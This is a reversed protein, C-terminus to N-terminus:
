GGDDGFFGAAIATSDPIEYRFSAPYGAGVFGFGNDVNTFTGPEVLLEADYVDTPPVWEANSVLVLVEVAEARLDQVPCSGLVERFIQRADNSFQVTVVSGGNVQEQDLAYPYEFELRSTDCLIHYRVRINNLRPAQPWFVPLFVFRDAVTPALLLPESLPPVTVEVSTVAGDSRTAELRYTHEFVARFESWFVHGIRGSSFRTVSDQWAHETGTQRDISVVRADLPEPRTLALSGEIAFIRMAQTDARANFFGYVTYARETGLVPDVSEECGMLLLLTGLLVTTLCLLRAWRAGVNANQTATHPHPPTPPNEIESQERQAGLGFDAGRGDEWVGM